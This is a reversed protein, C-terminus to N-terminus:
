RGNNEENNRNKKEKLQISTAVQEDHKLFFPSPM